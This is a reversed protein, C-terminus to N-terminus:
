ELCGQPPLFLSSLSLSCTTSDLATLPARVKEQALSDELAAVRQQWQDAEKQLVTIQSTRTLVQGAHDRGERELQDLRTELVANQSTLQESRARMGALECEAKEREGRQVELSQHLEKEKAASRHPSM